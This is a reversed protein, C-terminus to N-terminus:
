IEAPIDELPNLLLQLFFLITMLLLHHIKLLLILFQITYIRNLQFLLIIVNLLPYIRIQLHFLILNLKHSHSEHFVVDRSIIFQKSQINYLKYYKKAFPYGM